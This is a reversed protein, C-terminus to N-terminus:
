QTKLQQIKQNLEACLTTTLKQIAELRNIRDQLRERASEDVDSDKLLDDEDAILRIVISDVGEEIGAAEALEVWEESRKLTKEAAQTLCYRILIKSSYDLGEIIKLWFQAPDDEAIKTKPLGISRFHRPMDNEPDLSELASLIPEIENFPRKGYPLEYRHRWLALIADRCRDLKAPKEDDNANEADQILEAIYHAMWRSLTDVGDDLGLEKTLNIGLSLIAKDRSSLEM